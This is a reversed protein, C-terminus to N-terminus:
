LGGFLTIIQFAIAGVLYCVVAVTTILVHFKIFGWVLSYETKGFNIPIMVGIMSAASIYFIILFGIFAVYGINM